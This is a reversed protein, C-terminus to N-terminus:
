LDAFDPRRDFNNYPKEVMGGSKGDRQLHLFPQDLLSRSGTARAGFAVM